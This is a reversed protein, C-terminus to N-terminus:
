DGMQKHKIPMSLLALLYSPFFFFCSLLGAWFCLKASAFSFISSLSPRPNALTFFVKVSTFCVKALRIPFMRCAGSKSEGLRIFVLGVSSM